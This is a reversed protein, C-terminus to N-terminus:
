TTGGARKIRDAAIPRMRDLAPRLWPRPAIKGQVVSRAIIPVGARSIFALAKASKPRIVKGGEVGDELYRGYPLNTGVRVTLPGTKAKAISRWLMGNQVAPSEGPASRTKGWGQIRGIAAKGKQGYTKYGVPVPAGSKGARMDQRIDKVMDTAIGWLVGAMLNDIKKAFAAKHSVVPM